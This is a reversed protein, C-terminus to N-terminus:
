FLENTWVCRYSRETTGKASWTARASYIPSYTPDVGDWNLIADIAIIYQDAHPDDSVAYLGINVTADIPASQRAPRWELDVAAIVPVVSAVSVAVIVIGLIVLSGRLM